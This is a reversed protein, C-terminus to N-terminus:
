AARRAAKGGQRARECALTLMRQTLVGVIEKRFEASGRVDSIPRSEEVAAEAARAILEPSPKAGKLVAEARTARIPTPAVAGLVIRVDECVGTRPALTVLAGVGVVAIDMAERMTHRAYASGTRPPPPSAVVATVLEGPALVTKGPGLFCKEVAVTRRGDPGAIRLKAKYLILGPTTDASPAANCVNGVLTARNRIQVSGVLGAGEAVAPYNRWLPDSMEAQRMTVAPGVALGKKRDIKLDRFGPINKVDVILGPSAGGMKMRILLDTGGALVQARKHAALAAVAAKITTPALYEFTQL